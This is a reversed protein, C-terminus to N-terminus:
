INGKLFVWSITGYRTEPVMAKSTQCGDTPTCNWRECLGATRRKKEAWLINKPGWPLTVTSGKAITRGQGVRSAWFLPLQCAQLLVRMDMVKKSDVRAWSRGKNVGKFTDKPCLSVFTDELLEQAHAELNLTMRQCLATSMTKPCWQFAFSGCKLM